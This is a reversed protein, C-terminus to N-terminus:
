GGLRALEEEVVSPDLKRFVPTPAALAAGVAVPVSEWRAGVAYDGTIVPYGPGGDLDDVETLVPMPAHVGTGGLAEHIRQAAHPLFPTLLTNADSIVQLAVHLVTGMRPKDAADKLKWPAQESLYRNAEAVVRMAEGVAQKHRHRAILDGVTVFAARAAALLAEDAATLGAPDVPPVAGFNKAAMSVSRNVLNGWGAVLEDNNRRVFEAWTFDTDTSEPGAVAIFYRLADADYRELFDRVYIVVRRSSSFKRGEMTLFESSVVETPLNLAGRPGPEGGRSGGGNYGFLISPWILSHFVINDKGLFYYAQSKDKWFRQWADPDGSRRAWEVSASLYGIVADFWVYFRKTDWGERPIPVGWDLDRTIARPRLDAVLNQSFRLVNPRWGERTDLWDHLAGSFASLDLFMHETERFEPVEGNIKSRPDVLDAPDLQNGCTDCQDGRAGAAGCIPCTGEIYRDPLTRGTSPSIAGMTTETRIYGNRDLTEFLEQVVARHNRTTTRTYLDYSLGLAVLDGAIVRHYKDVAQQPTLGEDDAQVLIPTGHEDTGSVMLVDHGAMRMYRSFVDSPVGFGSVHGIHRPGNAYPWAVAALVNSM